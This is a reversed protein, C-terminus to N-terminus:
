EDESNDEAHLSDEGEVQSEEFEQKILPPCVKSNLVYDRLEEEFTSYEKGVNTM